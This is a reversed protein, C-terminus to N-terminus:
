DVVTFVFRLNAACPAVVGYLIAEEWKGIREKRHSPSTALAPFYAKRM